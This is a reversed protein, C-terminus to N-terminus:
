LVAQRVSEEGEPASEDSHGCVEALERARRSSCCWLPSTEIAVGDKTNTNNGIGGDGARGAGGQPNSFHEDYFSMNFLLLGGVEKGFSLFGLFYWGQQVCKHARTM